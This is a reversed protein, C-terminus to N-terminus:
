DRTLIDKLRHFSSFKEPDLYEVSLRLSKAYDMEDTVGRSMDLGPLRLVMVGNSAKIMRHDLFQWFSFEKSLDYKEVMAHCHVIPSFIPVNRKLFSVVAEEAVEFRAHRVEADRHSYPSALYYFSM